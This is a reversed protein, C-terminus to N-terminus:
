RGRFQNVMVSGGTVWVESGNSLDARGHAQHRIYYYYNQKNKYRERQVKLSELYPWDPIFQKPLQPVQTRFRRGM